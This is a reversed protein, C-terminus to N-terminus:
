PVWCPAPPVQSLGLCVAWLQFGVLVQQHPLSGQSPHLLSPAPAAPEGPWRHAGELPAPFGLLAPPSRSPPQEPPEAPPEHSGPVPPQVLLGQGPSICVVMFM